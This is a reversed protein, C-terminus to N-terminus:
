TRRPGGAPSRRVEKSFLATAATLIFFPPFLSLLRFLLFSPLLLFVLVRCGCKGEGRVRRGGREKGRGGDGSFMARMATSTSSAAATDDTLAQTLTCSRFKAVFM